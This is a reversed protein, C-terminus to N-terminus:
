RLRQADASTPGTAAAATATGSVTGPTGRAVEAAARRILLRLGGGARAAGAAPGGPCARRAAAGGALRVRRRRPAVTARGVDPDGARADRGGVDRDEGPGHGPQERPRHVAGVRVEGVLVAEAADVAPLQLQLDAIVLEVAAAVSC